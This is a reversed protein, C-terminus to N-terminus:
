ARAGLVDLLHMRTASDFVGTITLPDDTTQLARVAAETRPGYIGDSTGAEFGALKLADQLAAVDRGRDGRRLEREPLSLAGAPGLRRFGLVRDTPYASIGVQDHQNGGLVYIRQLDRSYGFFIGVHGDHSNPDGRWFVVVDGPEPQQVPRGVNLWSRANARNSRQAGAKLAVWNMFISCWPTEDDRVWTQGTEQAYQLIRETHAAGPTETVGIEAAAIEILEKM